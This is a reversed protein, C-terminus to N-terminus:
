EHKVKKMEFHMRDMKPPNLIDFRFSQATLYFSRRLREAVPSDKDYCISLDAEKFTQIKFATRDLKYMIYLYIFHYYYGFAAPTCGLNDSGKRLQTRHPCRGRRNERAPTEVLWPFNPICGSRPHLDQFTIKIFFLFACATFGM